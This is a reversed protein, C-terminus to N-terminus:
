KGCCKKYKKGSGCTCPDNRGVKTSAGFMSHSIPSGPVSLYRKIGNYNTVYANVFESRKDPALHPTLVNPLYMTGEHLNLFAKRYDGEVDDMQAIHFYAEILRPELRIAESFCARAKEFRGLYKLINGFGLQHEANSPHRAIEKRYLEIADRIGMEKGFAMFRPTVRVPSTKLVRKSKEVDKISLIRALEISVTMIGEDTLDLTDDAGCSVCKLEDAVFPMEDNQVVYVSKVSYRSIDGCASCEMELNLENRTVSGLDSIDLTRRREVDEAENALYEKELTALEESEIGHLKNLTLYARDLMNQGKGTLPALQGIFCQEPLAEIASALSEKDSKALESFHREFYAVAQEGGIQELLDQLYYNEEKQDSELAKIIAGVADEGYGALATACTECLLDFEANTTDILSQIFEQYGLRRMIEVIRVAGYTDMQAALTETLCAVAQARELGAFHTVFADTVPVDSLNTVLFSLIADTNVAPPEPHKIWASAAICAPFLAYLSNDQEFENVDPDIPWADRCLDLVAKVREPLRHKHQEYFDLASQNHLEGLMKVVDDLQAALVSDPLFLPIDSFNPVVYGDWSDQMMSLPETTNMMIYILNKLERDIIEPEHDPIANVITKIIDIAQPHDAKWALNAVLFSEIRNFEPEVGERFIIKMTADAVSKRHPTPLELAAELIAYLRERSNSPQNLFELFLELASDHCARVLLITAKHVCLDPLQAWSDAIYSFHPRQVDDPLERLLSVLLFDDTFNSLLSRITSENFLARAAEDASAESRKRLDSLRDIAWRAILPDRAHIQSCPIGALTTITGM